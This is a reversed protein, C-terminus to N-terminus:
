VRRPGSNAGGSPPRTGTGAMSSVSGFLYAFTGISKPKPSQGPGRDDDDKEDSLTASLPSNTLTSVCLPYPLLHSSSIPLFLIITCSSM